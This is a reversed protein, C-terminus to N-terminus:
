PRRSRALSRALEDRFFARAKPLADRVLYRPKQGVERIKAAIAYAAGMAEKEDLGLKRVAWRAIASIGAKGVEHPRAGLEVIGAHPADNVVEAGNGRRRAKWGAKLIGRDTIGKRDTDNALYAVTRRAAALSAEAMAKSARAAEFRLVRSVDKATITNSSM